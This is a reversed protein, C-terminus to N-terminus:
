EDVLYGIAAAFLSITANPDPSGETKSAGGSVVLSMGGQVYLRAPSGFQHFRGLGQTASFQSVSSVFHVPLYVVSDQGQAAAQIFDVVAGDRVALQGSVHEVVLLKGVPVVALVVEIDPTANGNNDNLDTDAFPQIAMVHTHV